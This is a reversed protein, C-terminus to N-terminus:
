QKDKQKGGLPRSWLLRQQREQKHLQAIQAARERPSLKTLDERVKRPLREIWQEERIARIVQLRHQTDEAEEIRQREAEPLRELWASYREAAKWLRKQTKTDLEHFARDLQRIQRRKPEPLAWFDRLDRQLRAYHEPDAKWKQLLQSNRELYAADSTGYTGEESPTAAVLFALMPLLLLCTRFTKLRDERM